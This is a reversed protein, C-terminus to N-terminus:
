GTIIDSVPAAGSGGGFVVAVLIGPGLLCWRLMSCVAYSTFLVPLNKMRKEVEADIKAQVAAEVAKQKTQAQAAMVQHVQLVQM